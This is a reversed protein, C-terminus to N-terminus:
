KSLQELKKKANILMQPEFLEHYKENNIVFAEVTLDLRKALLLETFGSHIKSDSLLERAAVVAGKKGILQYFRKPDYVENKILRYLTLLDSRFTKELDNM